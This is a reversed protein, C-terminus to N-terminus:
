ADGLDRRDNNVPAVDDVALRIHGFGQDEDIVGFAL